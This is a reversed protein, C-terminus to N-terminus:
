LLFFFLFFFLLLFVLLLFVLLSYFEFKNAGPSRKYFEKKKISYSYGIVLWYSNM